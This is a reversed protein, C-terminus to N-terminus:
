AARGFGMPIIWARGVKLARLTGDVCRRRVTAPSVGNEKAYEEVSTYNGEEFWVLEAQASTM